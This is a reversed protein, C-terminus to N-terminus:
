KPVLGGQVWYSNNRLLCACAQLTQKDSAQCPPLCSSTFKSTRLRRFQAEPLRCSKTFSSMHVCGRPRTHSLSGLRCCRGWRREQDEASLLYRFSFLIGATQVSFHRPHSWHGPFMIYYSINRNLLMMLKMGFTWEGAQIILIYYAGHQKYSMYCLVNWPNRAYRLLLLFYHVALHTLLEKKFHWLSETTASCPFSCVNEWCHRCVWKIGRM